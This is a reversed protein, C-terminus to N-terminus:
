FDSIKATSWPQPEAYITKHWDLFEVLQGVRGVGGVTAHKSWYPPAVREGSWHSLQRHPPPYPPAIPQTELSAYFWVHLVGVLTWLWFKLSRADNKCRYLWKKHILARTWTQVLIIKSWCIEFNWLKTM